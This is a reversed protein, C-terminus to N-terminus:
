PEFIPEINRGQLNAGVMKERLIRFYISTRKLAKAVINKSISGYSNGFTL